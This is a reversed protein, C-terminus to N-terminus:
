ESTQLNFNSTLPFNNSRWDRNSSVVRIYNTNAKSELASKVVYHPVEFAITYTEERDIIIVPLEKAKYSDKGMHLKLTEIKVSM